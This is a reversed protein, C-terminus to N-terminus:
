VQELKGLIIDIRGKITGREEMLRANESRLRENEGKLALYRELLQDVRQELEAFIEGDM